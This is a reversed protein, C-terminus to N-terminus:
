LVPYTTPFTREHWTAGSCFTDGTYGSVVHVCLSCFPPVILAGNVISELQGGPVVAGASEHKASGGWPFWGNAVVTTGVGTRTAGSYGKGSSGVVTLATLSPGAVVPASVMAWIGAGSGLATTSQVLWHSFIRDIVLSVSSSGNWLEFAAATTPRVVLAAIASTAMVSWSQGLRTLETFGSEGPAFLQQGFNDTALESEQSSGRITGKVVVSMEMGGNYLRRVSQGRIRIGSRLYSIVSQQTDIATEEDSM